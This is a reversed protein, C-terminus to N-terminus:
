GPSCPPLRTTSGIPRAQKVPKGAAKPAKSDSITSAAAALIFVSSLVYFRWSMFSIFFVTPTKKDLIFTLFAGSLAMLTLAGNILQTSLGVSINAADKEDSM